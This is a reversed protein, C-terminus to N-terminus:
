PTAALAATADVLGYGYTADYGTAGLDHATSTLISRLQSHTLSANKGLLLAAVGSVHPAAMSTGEFVDWAFALNAVTTMQGLHTLLTAGDADSVSVAPIWPTGNNDETTLTGSFSDAVNNYVIAASAGAAMASAVKTPFYVARHTPSGRKILAVFGAPPSAGCDAESTGYGCDVLPGTVGSTTPSFEMAAAAYTTAGISVSADRGQGAPVSSLIAVGPASIDLGRGTNSFSAHAGYRDVAGVSLVVPYAGPYEVRNRGSNGSSAVILTNHAALDNYLEEETRSRAAGGLSLNIVRCGQDALWQVGDMTQSTTGGVSGDPQTGLVRAEYLQAGYAVGFVGVTNKVGLLTGSIHTGHTETEAVSPHSPDNVDPNADNDIADHGAVFNAAIDPHTTALATDAVCAKVGAGIYGANQADAAHTTILGYLGNSLSPALEADALGLPTRIPDQEVYRVGGESALASIKTSALEIAFANVQPFSFRVTGGYRAVLAREAAGPANSFGVFLRERASTQAAAAGTLVALSATAVVLVFLAAVIKRV